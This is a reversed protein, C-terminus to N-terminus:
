VEVDWDEDIERIDPSEHERCRKLFEELHTSKIDFLLNGVRQYIEYDSTKDAENLYKLSDAYILEIYSPFDIVLANIIAQADLEYNGPYIAAELIIDFLGKTLGRDNNRDDIPERKLIYKWVNAEDDISFAYKLINIQELIDLQGLKYYLINLEKQHYAIKNWFIQSSIDIM